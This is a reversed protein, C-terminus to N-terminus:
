GLITERQHVMSFVSVNLSGPVSMSLVIMTTLFIRGVGALNGLFAPVGELVGM